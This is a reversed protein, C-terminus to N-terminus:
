KYTRGLYGVVAKKVELSDITGLHRYVVEGGPKVLLTYPMPGPWQPDLAEGLRSQHPLSIQFAHLNKNFIQTMFAM